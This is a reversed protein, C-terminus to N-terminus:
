FFSILTFSLLVDTMFRILLDETFEVKARPGWVYSIIENDGRGVKIRDLYGQKMFRLLQTEIDGFTEHKEKQDLGLRKMHVQLSEVM